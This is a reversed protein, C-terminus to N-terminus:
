CIILLCSSYCGASTNIPPHSAIKRKLNLQERDHQSNVSLPQCTQRGGINIACLPMVIGPVVV